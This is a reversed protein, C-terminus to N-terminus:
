RYTHIAGGNGEKEEEPFVKKVYRALGIYQIILSSLVVGFTITAITNKFSSEPLSAVLAVSLAGRMGGLVVIHRWVRPIKERTFRNTAALLPYTSAVRAALVAAFSLVILPFNQGINVINMNIGLYLFAASNAFFAIMEWFNFVSTRVKLSMYAEQKVTINGFYLGAVAVAVLGSLGLSNASVVSGFVAAVTLATESFPDNMLAHLRHTAAAIALGIAAGGFFVIAFHETESVFSLNNMTPSSSSSPAIPSANSISSVDNPSTIASSSLSSNGIMNNGASAASAFILTMVSSFVILGTADNFSAEFEMLTSLQKPVRIRKFIEIVIAPDTPAILAAFTFAIALPLHAIYTLLSGTVLTALVVGVTALLIASIRITKFEKFDVKMMAEFILPPIIFNIVLRPDIRFQKIDVTNLGVFDFFSIAIGFAVLIMIHPIRTRSSLVAAAFIMSLFIPIVYPSTLFIEEASATGVNTKLAEIAYTPLLLSLVAITV